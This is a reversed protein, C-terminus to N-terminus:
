TVSRSILRWTRRRGERFSLPDPDDLELNDELELSDIFDTFEVLDTEGVGLRCPEGEHSEGMVLM